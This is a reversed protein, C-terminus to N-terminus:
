EDVLRCLCQLCGAPNGHATDTADDQSTVMTLKRGGDLADSGEFGSQALCEHLADHFHMRFGDGQQFYLVAHVVVDHPEAAVIEILSLHFACWLHFVAADEVQIDWYFPNTGIM